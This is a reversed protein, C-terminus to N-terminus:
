PAIEFYTITLETEVGSEERRISLDSIRNAYGGSSLADLIDRARAYDGTEFTLEVQRLMLSDEQQLPSSFDVTYEGTRALIGHLEQLLASRNDYAPITGATGEAKAAEVRSEMERLRSLQIRMAGLESQEQAASDRSQLIQEQIPSFVLKFYGLALLLVALILLLVKERNTLARNM